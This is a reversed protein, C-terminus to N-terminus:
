LLTARWMWPLMQEHEITKLVIRRSKQWAELVTQYCYVAHGATIYPLM